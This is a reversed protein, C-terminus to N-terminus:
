FMKLSAVLYQYPLLFDIIEIYLYQEMEFDKVFHFTCNNKEHLITHPLRISNKKKLFHFAV